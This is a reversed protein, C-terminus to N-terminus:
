ENQDPPASAPFNMDWITKITTRLQEPTFPKEIYGIAGADLATLRRMMDTQGTVMVIPISKLAEDEQVAAVFEIGTMRPMDWDALVLDVAKGSRLVELGEIGDCAEYIESTFGEMGKIANRIIMRMTRSDEVLLINLALDPM